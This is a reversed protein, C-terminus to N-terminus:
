VCGVPLTGLCVTMLVTPPEYKRAQKNAVLNRAQLCQCHPDARPEYFGYRFRAMCTSWINAIITRSLLEHRSRCREAVIAGDRSLRTGTSM